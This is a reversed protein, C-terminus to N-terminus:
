SLEESLGLKLATTRAGKEMTFYMTGRKVDTRM